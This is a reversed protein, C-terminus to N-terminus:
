DNVLDPWKRGEERLVGLVVDGYGHEDTMVAPRIFPQIAHQNLLPVFRRSNGCHDPDGILARHVFDPTINNLYMAHVQKSEM